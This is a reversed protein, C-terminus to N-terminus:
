KERRLRGSNKGASRLCNSTTMAKIQRAGVRIVMGVERGLIRRGQLRGRTTGRSSTSMWGGRRASRRVDKLQGQEVPRGMREEVADDRAGRGVSVALIRVADWVGFLLGLPLLKGVHLPRWRKTRHVVAEGRQRLLLQVM